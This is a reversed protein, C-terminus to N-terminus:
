IQLRKYIQRSIITTLVFLLAGWSTDIIVTEINWGSLITYNTFEYVAYIVLGLIFADLLTKSKDSLIFYYIAFTLFAYTAIAGLYRFKIPTVQIKVVLNNFYNKMLSLYIGDILTFVLASIIYKVITTTNM